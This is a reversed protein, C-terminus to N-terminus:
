AARSLSTTPNLEEIVQCTEGVAALPDIRKAVLGCQAAVSPSALLERLTAAVLPARYTARSVVRAVGLNQLRRANEPQDNKIPMVLQPIGAALAQAATGIGGAHVLAAAHPLLKGLPFYDVHRIGVPLNPPLQERFRTLLLARRGLAVCAQISERFFDHAFDISSGPTFIIPASGSKVFDWIDAPADLSNVGDYPLFGTLRLPAPWDPQPSAFWKPFLGIVRQPSYRWHHFVRRVQPLGIERRLRNIEGALLPDLVMADLLRYGTRKAWRPWWNPFRLPPTIPSDHVSRFVYPSLHVTALPVGLHDHAIRAGLLHGSAVVVTQGPINRRAILDYVPRVLPAVTSARALKRWKRMLPATALSLFRAPHFYTGLSPRVVRERPALEEFQLGQARILSAFAQPGALTVDHGRTALTHGLALFPFVDGASRTTLLLTHM